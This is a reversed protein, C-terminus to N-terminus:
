KFYKRWVNLAKYNYWWLAIKNLTTWKMKWVFSLTNVIANTNTTSCRNWFPVWDIDQSVVVPINNRVYDATVINFTESMSVQMGIDMTRIIREFDDHCHWKHEVLEHHRSHAFLARLNKLVCDGKQEIRNSNIHFKLRLNNQDAFIIASVAQEFQNKLPRIAGFCGINITNHHQSHHHKKQGQHRHHEPVYINPLYIIHDYLKTIDKYFDKNNVAMSINTFNKALKELANMWEFAIGENALFPAKSHLRIIWKINKHLKLLLEIKSPVVWLAEIIIHTPKYLCIEKDIDNNDNVEVVKTEIRLFKNLAHAVFKASNLLGFSIGYSDIRKKIIFLIKLPKM